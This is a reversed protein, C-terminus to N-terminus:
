KRRGGVAQTRAMRGEHDIRIVVAIAMSLIIMSSGGYSVLPLTLGKTPLLGASAGMNVVGQFCLWIGIGSAFFGEFYREDQLAQRGIWLARFVVVALLVVVATVGVFGLEEALVAIVFDTHAEPLYALKQISNGLGEGTWSGRGFAMLSQTLQYGSGFPDQWPDWFSTVRRLRYPSLIILVAVATAGAILLAAFQWLRAGALFLMGMTTVLMVVVTGLDPQAILLCAIVFFVFLPKIFGKINERVEDHRRVLYGALFSFFFLKAVEAVQINIPGLALWRTSGNVKKGVILVAILLVIAVVLLFGDKDHWHKIPIQLVAGSICLALGMFIAHRIAYHYPNGFMREAESASASMVMILGLGFLAFVCTVLLGDYM